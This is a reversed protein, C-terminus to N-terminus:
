MIQNKNYVQHQFLYMTSHLHLKNRDYTVCQFQQFLYMTSHLYLNCEYHRYQRNLQFLYMTSHLYIFLLLVQILPQCNFYICLPIYIHILYEFINISDNNFYICLPIYIKLREFLLSYATATSISVYHFTFIM